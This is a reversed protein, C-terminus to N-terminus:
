LSNMVKGTINEPKNAAIKQFKNVQHYPIGDEEEWVKIPPNAPAAMACASETLPIWKEQAFITSASVIILVMKNIKKAGNIPITVEINM